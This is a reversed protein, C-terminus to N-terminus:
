RLQRAKFQSAARLSQTHYCRATDRIQRIREGPAKLAEANKDINKAKKYLFKKEARLDIGTPLEEAQTKHSHRPSIERM